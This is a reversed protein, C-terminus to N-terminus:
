SQWSGTSKSAVAIKVMAHALDWEGAQIEGATLQHAMRHPDAEAHAVGLATCRRSWAILGDIERYTLHAVHGMQIDARAFDLMRSATRRPIGADRLFGLWEGHKAVERAHLMLGACELWERNSRQYKGRARAALDDLTLRTNSEAARARPLTTNVTM